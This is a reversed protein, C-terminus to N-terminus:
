PQVEEYRRLLEDILGSAELKNLYKVGKSFLQQALQEIDRKDLKNEQVIRLILEKQKISCNWESEFGGNNNHHNRYGNRQRLSYDARQKGNSRPHVYGNSNPLPAKSNVQQPHPQIEGNGNGAPIYGPQQLERDVSSQLLAYLRTSEEEVQNLDNIETKITISFQHSSFGPLGIKKSYHAAIQIAM